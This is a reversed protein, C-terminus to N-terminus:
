SLTVSVAPVIECASQRLLLTANWKLTFQRHGHQTTVKESADNNNHLAAGTVFVLNRCASLDFETCHNRDKACRIAGILMMELHICSLQHLWDVKEKTKQSTSKSHCIWPSSHTPVEIVANSVHTWFTDYQRYTLLFTFRQMTTSVELASTEMGSATSCHRKDTALANM